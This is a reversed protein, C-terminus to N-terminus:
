RQTLHAGDIPLPKNYRNCSLKILLWNAVFEIYQCMLQTNMGILGVPLSKTMFEKKITVAEVIIQGPLQSLPKDTLMAYLLCAFDCHLGEDCSILNNSFVLGPM